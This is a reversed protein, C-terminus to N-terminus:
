HIVYSKSFIEDVVNMNGQFILEDNAFQIREEKNMSIRDMLKRSVKIQIKHLGSCIYNVTILPVIM